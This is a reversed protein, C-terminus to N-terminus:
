TIYLVGKVLKNWSDQSNGRGPEGAGGAVDRDPCCSFCFHGKSQVLVERCCNFCHTHDISNEDCIWFAANLFNLRNWDFATCYGILVFCKDAFFCSSFMAYHCLKWLLPFFVSINFATGSHNTSSVNSYNKQKNKKKIHWDNPLLLQTSLIESSVLSPTTEHNGTSLDVPHQHEISIIPKSIIELHINKCM